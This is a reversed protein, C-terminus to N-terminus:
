CKRCNVKTDICGPATLVSRKLVPAPPPPHITFNNAHTTAGMNPTLTSSPRLVLQPSSRRIPDRTPHIIHRYPNTPLLPLKELILIQYPAQPLPGLLLQLPMYDSKRRISKRLKGCLTREYTNSEELEFFARGLGGLRGSMM